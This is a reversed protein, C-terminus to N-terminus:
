GAIVSLRSRVCHPSRPDAGPPSRRRSSLRWRSTRCPGEEILEVAERLHAVTEPAGVFAEARALELLVGARDAAPPPEALARRLYASASEPAGGSLARRAAERLTEVV